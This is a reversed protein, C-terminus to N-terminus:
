KASRSRFFESIVSASVMAATETRLIRPGLGAPQFGKEELLGREDRTFGGEPGLAVVLPFPNEKEELVDLLGTEPQIESLIVGTVFDPLCSLVTELDAPKLVRTTRVGRCQKLSHLSLAQWREWKRALRSEGLRVITRRTIVPQIETIGIESLRSVAQDMRDGKIVPLMVRLPLLDDKEELPRIAELMVRDSHIRTIRAHLLCGSGDVLRVLSGPGLRRVRTMHFHEGNRLCIRGETQLIEPNVIFQPPRMGDQFVSSPAM